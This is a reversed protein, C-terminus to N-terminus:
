PVDRRRPQALRKMELAYFNCFDIAEAVDADSERWQKGCEFVEWASLEFRRRRMVAAARFLLDARASPSTDRWGPFASRAAAIAQQAHSVTARGCRGVIQKSHSPNISDIYAE